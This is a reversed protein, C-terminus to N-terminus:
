EAPKLGALVVVLAIFLVWIVLINIGASLVDIHAGPIECFRGSWVPAYGLSVRLSPDSPHVQQWPPMLVSYATFLVALCLGARLLWTQSVPGRSQEAM